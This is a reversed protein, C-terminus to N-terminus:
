DIDPLHFFYSLFFLFFFRLIFCVFMKFIFYQQFWDKLYWIFFIQVIWLGIYIAERHFSFPLDRYFFYHIFKQYLFLLVFLFCSLLILSNGSFLLLIIFQFLFAFFGYFLYQMLTRHFTNENTGLVGDLYHNISQIFQPTNSEYNGPVFDEAEKLKENLQDFQDLELILKKETFEHIIQKQHNNQHEGYEKLRAAAIIKKHRNLGDIITGVGGHCILIRCEDLLKLFEQSPILDFIEMYESIFKTEGAQVIVKEKINGNIIEREIAQLLRTFERDQTGLSVLIM